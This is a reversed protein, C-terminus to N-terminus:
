VVSQKAILVVWGGCLSPTEWQAADMGTLHEVLSMRMLVLSGVRAPMESYSLKVLEKACEAGGRCLQFGCLRLRISPPVRPGGATVHGRMM